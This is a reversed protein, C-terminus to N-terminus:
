EAMTGRVALHDGNEVRMKLANRRHFDTTGRSENLMFERRVSQIKKSLNTKNEKQGFPNVRFSRKFFKPAEM